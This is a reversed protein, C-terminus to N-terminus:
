NNATAKMLKAYAIEADIRANLLNIQSVTVLNDADLMDTVNKIGNDYQDKTMRRNENAQDVSVQNLSIKDLALKYASYDANVEMRINDSLQEHQAMAEQINIRAEKTQFQNTFLGTINWSLRVGIDWTNKFALNEAFFIRQNPEDYYFNFGGSIVPSYLGKAVKLMKGSIDLRTDAAKIEPRRRLANQMGGSIDFAPKTTILGADVIQIRTSDPLGLMVDMNYNSVDIASQM